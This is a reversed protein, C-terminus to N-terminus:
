LSYSEFRNRIRHRVPPIHRSLSIRGGVRAVDTEVDVVVDCRAQPRAHAHVGVERLRLDILPPEIERTKRKTERFLAIEEELTRPYEAERGAVPGIGVEAPPDPQELAFLYREVVRGPEPTLGPPVFEAEDVDICGLKLRRVHVTPREGSLLEAAAPTGIVSRASM